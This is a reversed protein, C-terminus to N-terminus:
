IFLFHDFTFVYRETSRSFEGPVGTVFTFDSSSQGSRTFIVENIRLLHPRTGLLSFPLFLVDTYFDVGFTNVTRDIRAFSKRVRPCALSNM